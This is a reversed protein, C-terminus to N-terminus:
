KIDKKKFNSFWIAFQILIGFIGIVLYYPNPDIKQFEFYFWSLIYISMLLNIFSWAKSFITKSKAPHSEESSDLQKFDEANSTQLNVKFQHKGFLQRNAVYDNEDVNVAVM